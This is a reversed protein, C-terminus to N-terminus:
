TFDSESILYHSERLTYSSLKSSDYSYSHTMAVYVAWVDYCLILFTYYSFYLHLICGGDKCIELLLRGRLLCLAYKSGFVSLIEVKLLHILM